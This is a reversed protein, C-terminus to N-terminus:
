AVRVPAVANLPIATKPAGARTPPLFGPAHSPYHSPNSRQTLSKHATGQVVEAGTM